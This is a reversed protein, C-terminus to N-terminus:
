ERRIKAFAKDLTEKYDGQRWISDVDLTEYYEESIYRTYIKINDSYDEIDEGKGLIYYKRVISASLNGDNLVYFYILVSGEESIDLYEPNYVTKNKDVYKIYSIKIQSSIDGQLEDMARANVLKLLEEKEIQKDEQMFYTYGIYINPAKRKFKAYLDLNGVNGKKIEKYKRGYRNYFGNFEYGKKYADPITFEDLVTYSYIPEGLFTGDNLDYTIQYTIPYSYVTRECPIQPSYGGYIRTYEKDFRWDRGDSWKTVYAYVTKSTTAWTGVISTRNRGNTNNESMKLELYRCSTNISPNWNRLYNHIGVSLIMTGDCYLQLPPAEYTSYDDAVYTDVDAYFYTIKAEYGFDWTFLSKANAEYWVKGAGDYAHHNTGAGKSKVDTSDPMTEQWPSWELALKRGFQIAEVKNEDDKEETTWDSYGPKLDESFVPLPFAFIFVFIAIIKLFKKMM